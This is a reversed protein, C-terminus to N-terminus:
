FHILFFSPLTPYTQSGGTKQLDFTRKSGGRNYADMALIANMLESSITM